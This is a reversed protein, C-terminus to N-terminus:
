PACPWPVLPDCLDSVPECGCPDCVFAMRAGKISVKKLELM